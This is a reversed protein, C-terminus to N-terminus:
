AKGLTKKGPKWEVPCLEGTQLARL